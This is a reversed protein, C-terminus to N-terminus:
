WRGESTGPLRRLVESTFLNLTELDATPSEAVGFFRGKYFGVKGPQAPRWRQWADFATAGPSEPMELLTLRIPALGVYDARCFRRAGSIGSWQRIESPLHKGCDSAGSLTWTGAIQPPDITPTARLWIESGAALIAALIAIHRIRKSM